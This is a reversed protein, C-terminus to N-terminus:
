NGESKIKEKAWKWFDQPIEEALGWMLWAILTIIGLTYSPSVIQLISTVMVIIWFIFSFDKLPNKM